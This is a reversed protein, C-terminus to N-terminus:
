FEYGFQDLDERYYQEVKNRFLPDGFYERHSDHSSQNLHPLSFEVGIKEFVPRLEQQLNEFHCVFDVPVRSRCHRAYDVQPRIVYSENKMLAFYDKFSLSKLFPYRRAYGGQYRESTHFSYSSVLRSFPNRVILFTVYSEWTVSALFHGPVRHDAEDLTIGLAKKISTGACKPNHVFVVKRDHLVNISREKGAHDIIPSYYLWYLAERLRQAAVSCGASLSFINSM